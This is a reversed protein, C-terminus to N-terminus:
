IPCISVGGKLTSVLNKHTSVWKIGGLTTAPETVGLQFQFQINMM